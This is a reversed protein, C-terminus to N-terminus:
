KKSLDNIIKAHKNMKGKILGGLYNRFYIKKEHTIIFEDGFFSTIDGIAKNEYFYKGDDTKVPGRTPFIPDPNLLSRKLFSFVEEKLHQYEDYLGGRYGMGWIPIEKLWVIEEGVDIFEGFYQDEYRFDNQEYIYNKSLICKSTARQGDGAYGNKRALILFNCLQSLPIEELM